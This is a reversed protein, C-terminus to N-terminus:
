PDELRRGPCASGNIATVRLLNVGLNAFADIDSCRVHTFRLDLEDGEGIGANLLLPRVNYLSWNRALSLEGLQSLGALASLDTINNNELRLVKLAHLRRLPDINEIGNNSLFLHELEIM